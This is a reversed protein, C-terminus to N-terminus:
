FLRRNTQEKYTVQSTRSRGAQINEENAAHTQPGEKYSKSRPRASTRTCRTENKTTIASIFEKTDNKSALDAFKNM